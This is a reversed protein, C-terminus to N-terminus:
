AFSSALVNRTQMATDFYPFDKYDSAEYRGSRKAILRRFFQPVPNELVHLYGLPDQWFENTGLESYFLYENAESKSAIESAHCEIWQMDSNQLEPLLSEGFPVLHLHAHATGCATLSGESNAGHEFAILSGYQQILPPLVYGLFDAFMPSDYVCRMSLQHTKPVILSWGEVLPGISAIAFFEDNIAFPEDIENYHYEGFLIDCFRCIGFPGM